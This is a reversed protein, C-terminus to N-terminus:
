KVLPHGAKAWDALVMTVAVVNTFGLDQLSKAAFSCRGGTACYLYMQKATDTKDPFGVHKWIQFEILGRPVNIAGPVHGATYENPERVDVVLAGMPNDVVKRFGAMDITKISKRVEKVKETVIPPFSPAAPAQALAPWVLAAAMLGIATAALFKKM